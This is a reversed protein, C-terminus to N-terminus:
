SVTVVVTVNFTLAIGTIVQAVGAAMVCGILRPAVCSLAVAFAAAGEHIVRGGPVTSSAPVCVISTSNVGDFV